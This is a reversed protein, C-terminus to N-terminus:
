AGRAATPPEAPLPEHGGFLPEPAPNDPALATPLPLALGTGAAEALDLEVAPRLEDVPHRPVQGFAGPRRPLDALPAPVAEADPRLMEELVPRSGGLDLGCSPPTRLAGAADLDPTALDPDPRAHLIRHGSPAQLRRERHFGSRDVLLEV